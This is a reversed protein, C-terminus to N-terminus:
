AVTREERTENGIVVEAVYMVDSEKIIADDTVVRLFVEDAEKSTAENKELAETRLKSAELMESWGSNNGVSNHIGYIYYWVVASGSYAIFLYAGFAGLYSLLVYNIFMAFFPFFPVLPVRFQNAADLDEVEPCYFFVLFPIVAVCFLGLAIFFLVANNGLDANSYLSATFISILNFAVLYYKTTTPNETNQRRLQILASNSLNFSVLIGASILDNLYDFDVFISILICLVGNIIISKTLNGRSDM